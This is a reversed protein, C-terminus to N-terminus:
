KTERLRNSGKWINMVQRIREIAIVILKQVQKKIQVIPADLAFWFSNLDTWINLFFLM